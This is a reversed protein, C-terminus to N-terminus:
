WLVYSMVDGDLKHDVLEELTVVRRNEPDIQSICITPDEFLERIPKASILETHEAVVFITRGPLVDFRVIRAIYSDATVIEKGMMRSAWMAPDTELHSLQMKKLRAHTAEAKASESIAIAFQRHDPSAPTDGM